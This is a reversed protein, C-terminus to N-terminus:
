YFKMIPVTLHRLCISFFGGVCKRHDLSTIIRDLLFFIADEIRVKKQFGFQSPSLLKNSEFHQSLRSLMTKELVKSITPLLSVPRYNNMETQNGKKYIPRVIAFKCREPFIGTTLSLNCIYTLPKIVSGACQKLIKSSIGDYGSSGKSKLSKIICMVEVESVPITIMSKINELKLNNLLMSAKKEDSHKNNLKTNINIYYDNFANAIDEHNELIGKDTKIKTITEDDHYHKGTNDKVLQWATKIKNTSTTLKKHYLQKKAQNIVKTLM